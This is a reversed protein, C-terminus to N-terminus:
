LPAFLEASSRADENLSATNGHGTGVVSTSVDTDPASQIRWRQNNNLEKVAPIHRHPGRANMGKDRVTSRRLSSITYSAEDSTVDKDAM